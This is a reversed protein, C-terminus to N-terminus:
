DKHIVCYFFADTDHELPNMRRTKLMNTGFDKGDIQMFGPLGIDEFPDIIEVGKMSNVVSHVVAENEQYHFSCTSYVLQGGSELLNLGAKLLRKQLGAMQYIDNIDRSRKRSPDVRIIGGGTCPADLLIKNPKFNKQLAPSIRTADQPFVVCNNIGMRRINSKLAKIRSIKVDTAMILGKNEMLQGIQTTKSGPAACMDLVRDGPQPHLLHVPVMSAMSQIYYYGWLYEHTAGLKLHTNSSDVTLGYDIWPTPRFRFRKKSLRDNLEKVSTKLTNVRIINKPPKAFARVMAVFNEPYHLVMQSFMFRSYGYNEALAYLKEETLVM